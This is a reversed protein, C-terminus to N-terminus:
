RNKLWDKLQNLYSSIQTQLQIKHLGSPLIAIDNANTIIQNPISSMYTSSHPRSFVLKHHVHNLKKEYWIKRRSICSIRLTGIPLIFAMAQHATFDSNYNKMISDKSLTIISVIVIFHRNYTQTFNRYSIKEMLKTTPM